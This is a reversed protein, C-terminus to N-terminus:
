LTEFYLRPLTSIHNPNRDIQAQSEPMLNQDQTKPKLKAQCTQNKSKLKRYQTQAQM